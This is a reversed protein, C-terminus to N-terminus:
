CTDRRDKTKPQTIKNTSPRYVVSCVMVINTKFRRYEKMSVICKFKWPEKRGLEEKSGESIIKIQCSHSWKSNKLTSQFCIKQVKQSYKWKVKMESAHEWQTYVQRYASKEKLVKLSHWKTTKHSGYSWFKAKLEM